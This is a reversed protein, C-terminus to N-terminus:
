QFKQRKMEKRESKKIIERRKKGDEGGDNAVGKRIGVDCDSMLKLRLNLSEVGKPKLQM